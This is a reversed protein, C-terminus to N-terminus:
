LLLGRLKAELNRPLSEPICAFNLPFSYQLPLFKRADAVIFWVYCGAGLVTPGDLWSLGVARSLAIAAPPQM